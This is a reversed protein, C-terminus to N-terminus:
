DETNSHAFWVFVGNTKTFGVFVEPSKCPHPLAVTANITSDGARNAAFPGTTVNMVGDPTICSVTTSFNAIPNFGLPPNPIILGIVQVSVNGQHDVAGTGSTIVWPAGGAAIGRDNVVNVGAAAVGTMSDFSVLTDNQAGVTASGIGILSLAGLIGVLLKRLSGM